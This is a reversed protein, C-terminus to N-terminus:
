VFSEYRIKGDVSRQTLEKQQAGKVLDKWSFEPYTEVNSEGLKLDFCYEKKPASRTTGTLDVEM